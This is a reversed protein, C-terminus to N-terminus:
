STTGGTERGRAHPPVATAALRRLDRGSTTRRQTPERVAVREPDRSRSRGPCSETVIAWLPRLRRSASWRMVRWWLSELGVRPGWAPLTMGLVFLTSGVAYVSKFLTSSSPLGLHLDDGVVSGFAITIAGLGLVNSFSVTRLGLRLLPVDAVSAYRWALGVQAAVGYYVYLLFPYTYAGAFENDSGVPPHDFCFLVVVAVVVVTFVRVHLGLRARAQAEPRSLFLLWAVIALCTGMSAVNAALRTLATIGLMSDLAVAVMRASLVALIASLGLVTVLARLAPAGPGAARQRLHRLKYVFAAWALVAAVLVGADSVM